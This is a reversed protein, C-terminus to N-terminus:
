DKPEGWGKQRRHKGQPYWLLNHHLNLDKKKGSPELGSHFGPEKETLNFKLNEIEHACGYPAAM